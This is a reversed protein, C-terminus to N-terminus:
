WGGDIIAPQNFNTSENSAGTARPESSLLRDTANKKNVTGSCDLISNQICFEINLFLCASM